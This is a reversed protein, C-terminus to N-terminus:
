KQPMEGFNTPLEHEFKHFLLTQEVYWNVFVTGALEVQHPNVLTTRTTAICMLM